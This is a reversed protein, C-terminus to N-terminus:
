SENWLIKPEIFAFLSIIFFIGWKLKLLYPCLATSLPLFTHQFIDIRSNNKIFITTTFTFSICSKLLSFEWLNMFPYLPVQVTKNVKAKCCEVLTKKVNFKELFNYIIYIWSLMFLHSYRPFHSIPIYNM